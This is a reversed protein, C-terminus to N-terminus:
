AFFFIKQPLLSINFTVGGGGGSYFLISHAAQVRARQAQRRLLHTVGVVGQDQAVALWFELIWPSQFGLANSGLQLAHLHSLLDM